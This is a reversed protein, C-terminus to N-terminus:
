RYDFLVVIQAVYIADEFMPFKLVTGKTIESHDEFSWIEDTQPEIYVLGEATIIANLSHSFPDGTENGYGQILVVGVDYSHGRAHLMLLVSFHLCTFDPDDYEYEDTKDIELWQELESTSPVSRNELTLDLMAYRERIEDYTKTLNDREDVVREYNGLLTKYKASIENYRFLLDAYASETVNLVTVTGGTIISAMVVIIISVVLLPSKNL